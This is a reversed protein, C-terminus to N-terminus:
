KNKLFNNIKNKIKNELDEPKTSVFGVNGFTLNRLKLHNIKQIKKPNIIYLLNGITNLLNRILNEEKYDM